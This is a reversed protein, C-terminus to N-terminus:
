LAIVELPVDLRKCTEALSPASATVLLTADQMVALAVAELALFNGAHISACGVMAPVLNRPDATRIWAPLHDLRNTLLDAAEPNLNAVRGSLRGRGNGLRIARLARFHWSSTTAVGEHATALLEPPADGGLLSLLIHDDIVIV